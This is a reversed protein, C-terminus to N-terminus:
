HSRNHRIQLRKFRRADKLMEDMPYNSGPDHHGGGLSGLDMHRIVGKASMNPQTLSRIPIGYERSWRAVWRATEELEADVWKGQTAFGIQEIGLSIANYFACHWAKEHDPIFRASFGDSDTAVHSSGRSVLPVSPDDFYHGLGQLDKISEAINAGETDHIVIWMLPAGHRTSQRRVNIRVKVEPFLRTGSM